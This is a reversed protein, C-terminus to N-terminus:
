EKADDKGERKPEFCPCIGHNIHHCYGYPPKNVWEKNTVFGFGDLRPFEMCQWYWPPSKRSSELVLDCDACYTTAVMPTDNM